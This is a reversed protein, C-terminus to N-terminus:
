EGRNNKKYRERRQKAADVMRDRNERYYKTARKIREERYKKDSNYRNKVYESSARRCWNAYGDKTTANKGFESLEHYEQHYPCWRKGDKMKGM